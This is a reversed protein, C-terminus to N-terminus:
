FPISVGGSFVLDQTFKSGRGFDGGYLYAEADGRLILGRIPLRLGASAVGGIDTTSEDPQAVTNQVHLVAAGGGLVIGLGKRDPTINWMLKGSGFVLDTSRPFRGLVAQVTVRAPSYGGTFEVALSKSTWYTLRGGYAFSGRRSADRTGTQLGEDDTPLYWGAFAGLEVKKDQANAQTPTALLVLAGLCLASGTLLRM